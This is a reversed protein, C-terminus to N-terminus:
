PEKRLGCVTQIAGRKHFIVGVSEFIVDWATQRKRGEGDRDFLILKGDDNVNKLFIM